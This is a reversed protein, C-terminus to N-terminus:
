QVIWVCFTSLGMDQVYSTFWTYHNGGIKCYLQIYVRATNCHHQWKLDQSALFLWNEAFTKELRLQDRRWTLPWKWVANMCCDSNKSSCLSSGFTNRSSGSATRIRRKARLWGMPFSFWLFVVTLMFENPISVNKNRIVATYHQNGTKQLPFHHCHWVIYIVAHVNSMYVIM